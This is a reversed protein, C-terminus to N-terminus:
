RGTRGKGFMVGFTRVIVEADMRFGASRVYHLELEQRRGSEWTADNRESVQWWGTVGPRVSLLEERESATFNELEDISHRRIFTGVGPIVRPDDRIKFLPGDAENRDRLGGLLEDADPVM